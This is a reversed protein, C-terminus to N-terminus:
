YGQGTRYSAASKAIPMGNHEQNKEDRKDFNIKKALCNRRFLIRKKM